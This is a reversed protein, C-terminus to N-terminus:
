ECISITQRCCKDGKLVSQELKVSVPKSFLTEFVRKTYGVTCSCLFPNNVGEKVLFCTCEDFVLVIQNGEKILNPTNYYKVKFADFVKDLDSNNEYELRIEAAGNLLLSGKSCEEGCLSVAKACKSDDLMSLQGLLTNIWESTNM